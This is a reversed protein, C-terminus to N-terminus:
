PNGSRHLTEIEAMASSVDLTFRAGHTGPFAKLGWRTEPCGTSIWVHVGHHRAMPVVNGLLTPVTDHVITCETVDIVLFPVRAHLCGQVLRRCQPWAAGTLRGTLTLIGIGSEVRLDIRGVTGPSSAPRPSNDQSARTSPFRRRPQGVTRPVVTVQDTHM